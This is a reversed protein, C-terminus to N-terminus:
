PQVADEALPPCNQTMWALRETSSMSNWTEVRLWETEGPHYAEPVGNADIDVVVPPEPPCAFSVDLARCMTEVLAFALGVAAERENSCWLAPAGPLSDSIDITRGDINVSLNVSIM